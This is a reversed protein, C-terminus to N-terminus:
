FQPGLKLGEPRNVRARACVNEYRGKRGCRGDAVHVAM